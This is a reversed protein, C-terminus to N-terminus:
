LLADTFASTTAPLVARPRPQQTARHLVAALAAEDLHTWEGLGGLATVDRRLSQAGAAVVRTGSAAAKGLLGSPGENSHALVLCDAARVATDLEDDTLLRDLVIASGESVMSGLRVRLEETIDEDLQGAVLLGWPLSVNRLAEVILDLNKRASIAGLVAFWYREGDMGYETRFHAVSQDSSAIVVPDVAVPFRATGAWGASKLVRLDVNQLRAVRSFATSRLLTKLRDVLPYRTPQASERMILLSLRGSGAWHRRVALRLAFRDADPIVVRDAEVEHSIRAVDDLSMLPRRLVEISDIVSALHVQEPEPAPDPGLLVVVRAGTALAADALVRVYFLRHGTPNQEVVLVTNPNGQRLSNM